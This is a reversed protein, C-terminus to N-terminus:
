CNIINKVKNKCLYILDYAKKDYKKNEDDYISAIMDCVKLYYVM